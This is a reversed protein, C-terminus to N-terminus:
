RRPFIQWRREGAFSRGDCKAKYFYKKLKLETGTWQWHGISGCDGIGRGKYFSSMTKTGPDFDAQTLSKAPVFKKGDWDQFALLRAKGDAGTVFVIQGFQYAASWCKVIFLTQGGGLDFSDPAEAAEEIPVTCDDNNKFAEEIAARPLVKDQAPAAAASLGLLVLAMMFRM